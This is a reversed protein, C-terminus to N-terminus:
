REKEIVPYRKGRVFARQTECSLITILQPMEYPPFITARFGFVAVADGKRKLEIKRGKLFGNQKNKAWLPVPESSQWLDLTFAKAAEGTLGYRNNLSKLGHDTLDVRCCM